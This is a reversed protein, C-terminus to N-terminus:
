SDRWPSSGLRVRVVLALTVGIGVVAMACGVLGSRTDAKV